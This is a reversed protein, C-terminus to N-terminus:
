GRRRLTFIRAVDMTDDLCEEDDDDYNDDDGVGDDDDENDDNYWLRWKM